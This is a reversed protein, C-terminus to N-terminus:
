STASAPPCTRHRRATRRDIAAIATVDGEAASRELVYPREVAGKGRCRHCTVVKYPPSLTVYSIEARDLTEYSGEGHCEPCPEYEAAPDAVGCEPCPRADAPITCCCATCPLTTM